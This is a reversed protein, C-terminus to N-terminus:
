SDDITILDFYDKPYRGFYPTNDKGSMFTQFITFLISANMPVKGTKKIESPKIRKLADEPFPSFANFAQNALINRDTLFLVGM